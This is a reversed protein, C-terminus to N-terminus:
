CLNKKLEMIKFLRGMDTPKESKILREYGSWIDDKNYGLKILKEAIKDGHLNQLFNKQNDFYIKELFIKKALLALETFAVSASIDALGLYDFVDVSQHHYLSQLYDGDYIGDHGYDIIIIMAGNKLVRAIDAIPKEYSIHQEYIVHKKAPYPMDKISDIPRKAFVFRKGNYQVVREQWGDDQLFFQRPLLCDFFENAIIFDVTHMAIASLNKQWVINSYKMLRKKQLDMLRDSEEIISVKLHPLFDKPCHNLMDLMMSGRGGGMELLHYKKDFSTKTEAMIRLMLLAGFLPSIDPSTIFDGKTGFAEGRQYYFQLWPTFFEEITLGQNKKIAVQLNKILNERTM